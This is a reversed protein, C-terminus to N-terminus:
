IVAVAVDDNVPVSVTNDNTNGYESAAPESPTSEESEEESTDPMVIDSQPLLIEDVDIAVEEESDASSSDSEQDINDFSLEQDEFVFAEEVIDESTPSDELEENEEEVIEEEDEEETEEQEENPLSAEAEGEQTDESTTTEEVEEDDLLEETEEEEEEVDEESAEAIEEQEEDAVREDLEGEEVGEYEELMEGVHEMAEDESVATRGVEEIVEVLEEESMTALDIDSDVFADRMEQTIVINDSSDSDLSQLLVAMNEVYEDNMDTRDVQALDQLFVKDDSTDSMMMSGVVLDGLKFIVEDGDYYDFEGNADTYGKFGSTTEYYLGEIIGDVVVADEGAQREVTSIDGSTETATVSATIAKTELESLEQSTVVTVVANGSGDVSVTYTGDGNDAIVSGNSYKLVAGDPIDKLTINSLTEGGNDKDDLAAHLNINYQYDTTKIYIDDVRLYTSDDNSNNEISLALKGDNDLLTEFSQKNEYNDLTEYDTESFKEVGNAIITIENAVKGDSDSDSGNTTDWNTKVESFFVVEVERDKFDVGFDYTKNAIHDNTLSNINLVDNEDDSVDGVSPDDYGSWGTFDNGTFNEVYDLTVVDDISMTLTPTDANDDASVMTTTITKTTTAGSDDTINITISKASSTSDTPTYVINGDNDITVEGTSGTVTYEKIDGSYDVKGIIQISTNTILSADGEVIKLAETIHSTTIAIDGDVQNVQSSLSGSIDLKQEPTLEGVTVLSVTTVSNAVTYVGNTATLRAGSADVLYAGLPLDKITIDSLNENTDTKQANLTLDYKYNNSEVIFNDIDLWEGGSGSDAFNEINVALKGDADLTSNFTYTGGALSDEDNFAITNGSGITVKMYDDDATDATDDVTDWETKDVNTDFSVEVDVNAFAKGFDFIKSATIDEGHEDDTGIDNQDLRLVDAESEETNDGNAKTLTWRDDDNDEITFDDLEYLREGDGLRISLLPADANDGADVVTININRTSTNGDNDTVSISVIDTTTSAVSKYTIDGNSELTATTGTESTTIINSDITGNNDDAHAIVQEVEAVVTNDIEEIIPAHTFFEDYTIKVNLLPTDVIDGDNDVIQATISETHDTYDTDGQNVVYRYTGTDFNVQFVGHQGVVEQVPEASKYEVVTSGIKVSALHGGDAGFDIISNGEDDITFRGDKYLDITGVLENKLEDISVLNIAEQSIEDENNDAVHAIDILMSTTNISYTYLKDISGSEIFNTWPNDWEITNIAGGMDQNDTNVNSTRDTIGTYEDFPTQYIWDHGDNVGIDDTKDGADDEEGNIEDYTDGDGFFYVINQDASPQNSSINTAPDFGYADDVLAKLGTYIDTGRGTNDLVVDKAADADVWGSQIDEYGKFQIINVNVNGYESYNDVASAIAEQTQLLDRDTMSSSIDIVFSLNTEVPILRINLTQALTAVDPADDEIAVNLTSSITEGDVTSTVAIPIILEDETLWTDKGTESDSNYDDATTPNQHDIPASLTTTYGTSSNTDLEVKVVEQYSDEDGITGTYGVLTGGLDNDSTNNIWSISEGNSTYTGSPTELSVATTNEPYTMIKDIDDTTDMETDTNEDKDDTDALGGLLGEESLRVEEDTDAIATTVGYGDISVNEYGKGDNTLAYSGEEISVNFFETNEVEKDNFITTSIVTNLVVSTQKTNDFDETGDLASPDDAGLANDVITSTGDKFLINVSGLQEEDTLESNELFDTTEPAFALVKYKAIDGGTMGEVASNDTVYKGDIIIANGDSDLAILKIIATDVAEDPTKDEAGDTITGTASNNDTDIALNEFKATSTADVSDLTVTYGENGELLFDEAVVNSFNYSGTGDGIITVTTQKTVLDGSEVGDVGTTDAYSLTM